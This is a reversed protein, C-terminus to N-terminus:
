LGFHEAVLTTVQASRNEPNTQPVGHLLLMKRRRRIEQRDIELKQFENQRRLMNLTPVIFTKFPEFDAALFSTSASTKCASKQLNVQFEVMRVMFIMM